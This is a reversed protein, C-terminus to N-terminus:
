ESIKESREPNDLDIIVPKADGPNMSITKGINQKWVGSMDPSEHIHGHLTLFPQEKEIFDRVSKSGIHKGTYLVDLM